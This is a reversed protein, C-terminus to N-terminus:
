ALQSDLLLGVKRDLADFESNQADAVASILASLATRLSEDSYNELKSVLSRVADVEQSTALGELTPMAEKVGEIVGGLQQAESVVKSTIASQAAAISSRIEDLETSYNPVNIKDLRQVIQSARNAALRDGSAIANLVPELDVKLGRIMGEIDPFAPIVIAGLRAEISLFEDTWDRYPQLLHAPAEGWISAASPPSPVAAIVRQALEQMGRSGIIDAQIRGDDEFAFRSEVEDAIVVPDVDVTGIQAAIDAALQAEDIDVAGGSGAVLGASNATRLQVSNLNLVDAVNSNAGLASVAYTGDEFTITYGNIIEIVRALTTGGVTVTTNHNHTKPWVMGQDSDELDKLELRFAELDLERVEFPVSQVLTMDARPITIVGTPWDISIAM